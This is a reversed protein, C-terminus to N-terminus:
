INWGYNRVLVRDFLEMNANYGHEILYRTFENEDEIQYATKIIEIVQEETLIEKNKTVLFVKEKKLKWEEFERKRREVFDRIMKIFDENTVQGEALELIWKDHPYEEWVNVKDSFASIGMGWPTNHGHVICGNIEKWFYHEPSTFTGQKVAFLAHRWSLLESDSNCDLDPIFWYPNQALCHGYTTEYDLTYDHKIGVGTFKHIKIMFIAGEM